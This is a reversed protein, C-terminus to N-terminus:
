QPPQREYRVFRFDVASNLDHMAQSTKAIFDAPIPPYFADGAVNLQVHTIELIDSIALTQSFFDGGGIVFFGSQQQTQAQQAALDLASSYDHAVFVGDAQWDTQRTLVINVRNPLPRGISAFTKRGMVVVGGSTLAKFHKFDDPLYWPMSNNVGICHDRDMAVVQTVTLGQWSM